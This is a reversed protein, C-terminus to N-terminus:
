NWRSSLQKADRSYRERCLQKARGHQQRWHQRENRFQHVVGTSLTALQTYDRGNLPLETIQTSTIVQGLSSTESQIIPAAENVEVNESVAGVAMQFDLRLRDQVRLTIAPRTETKFGQAEATVKYEGPRLPPSAYDGTADARAKTTTGTGTEVFTITASAVSAGQSDRVTGAITGADVQALVPAALLLM